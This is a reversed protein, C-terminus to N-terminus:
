EGSPVSVDATPSPAVQSLELSGEPNEASPELSAQPIQTVTAKSTVEQPGQTSLSAVATQSTQRHPAETTLRKPLESTRPTLNLPARTGPVRSRKTTPMGPPHTTPKKAIKTVWKKTSKPAKGPARTTKEPM